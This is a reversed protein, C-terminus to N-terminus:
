QCRVLFIYALNKYSYDMILHVYQDGSPQMLRARKRTERLRYNILLSLCRLAADNGALVVMKEGHGCCATYSSIHRKNPEDRIHSFCTFVFSFYFCDAKHRRAIPGFFKYCCFLSKRGLELAHTNVM